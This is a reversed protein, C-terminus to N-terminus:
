ECPSQGVGPMDVRVVGLIRAIREASHWGAEIGAKDGRLSEIEECRFDAASHTLDRRAASKRKPSCTGKPQEFSFTWTALGRRFLCRLLM